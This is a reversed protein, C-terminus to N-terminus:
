KSRKPYSKLLNIMSPFAEDGIIVFPARIHTDPLLKLQPFPIQDAFFKEGFACNHFTNSDGETGCAGVDIMIFRYRSDVLGM